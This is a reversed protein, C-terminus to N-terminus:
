WEERRWAKGRKGRKIARRAVKRPKGPAQGCCPCKGGGPGDACQRGIMSDGGYAM